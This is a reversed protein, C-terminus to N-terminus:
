RPGRWSGSGAPGAAGNPEDSASALARKLAAQLALRHQEDQAQPPVPMGREMYFSPPDEFHRAQVNAPIFMADDSKGLPQQTQPDIPTPKLTPLPAPTGRLRDLLMALWSDGEPIQTTARDGQRPKKAMTGGGDWFPSLTEPYNEAM